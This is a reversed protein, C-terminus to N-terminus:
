YRPSYSMGRGKEQMHLQQEFDQVRNPLHMWYVLRSIEQLIYRTASIKKGRVNTWSPWSFTFSNGKPKRRQLLAAPDVVICSNIESHLGRTAEKSTNILRVNTAKEQHCLCPHHWDAQIDTRHLLNFLPQLQNLAALHAATVPHHKFRLGLIIRQMQVNSCSIDHRSQTTEVM